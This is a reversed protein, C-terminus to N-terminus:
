ASREEMRDRSRKLRADAAAIMAEAEQHAALERELARWIPLYLKKRKGARDMYEAVMDLWKEIRAATVVIKKQAPM